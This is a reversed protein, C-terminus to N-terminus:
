MPHLYKKYEDSIEMLDEALRSTLLIHGDDGIDMVRRCMIIGPGWINEDGQLLDWAKQQDSTLTM